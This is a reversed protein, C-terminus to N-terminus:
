GRRVGSRRQGSESGAAVASYWTGRRARRRAKGRSRGRPYELPEQTRNYGEAHKGRTRRWRVGDLRALAAFLTGLLMICAVGVEVVAPAPFALSCVRM